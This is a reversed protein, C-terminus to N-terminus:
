WRCNALAPPLSQPTVRRLRRQPPPPARRLRLRLPPKAVHCRFARRRRRGARVRYVPCAHQLRLPMRRIRWSRQLRRPGESNAAVLHPTPWWRRQLIRPCPRWTMRQPLHGRSSLHLLLFRILRVRPRWSLLLQLIRRMQRRSSLQPHPLGVRLVPRGQWQLQRVKHAM